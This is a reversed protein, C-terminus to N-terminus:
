LTVAIGVTTDVLLVELTAMTERAFRVAVGPPLVGVGLAIPISLHESLVLAGEAFIAGYFLTTRSTTVDHTSSIGDSWVHGFGLRIGAMSLFRGLRRPVFAFLLSGLVIRYSASATDAVIKKTLVSFAGSIGVAFSRIGFAVSGDVIGM